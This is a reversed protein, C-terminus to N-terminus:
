FASALLMIVLILVVVMVVAKLNGGRARPDVYATTTAGTRANVMSSVTLVGHGSLRGEVDVDDGQRLSGGRLEGRLMCEVSDGSHTQLLFTNIPISLQDPGQPGRFMLSPIMLFRLPAFLIGMLIGMARFPATLCGSAAMQATKHGSLSVTESRPQDVQVVLGSMRLPAFKAFFGGSGGSAAVVGGDDVVPVPQNPSREIEPLEADYRASTDRAEWNPTDGGLWDYTAPSDVEALHSPTDASGDVRWGCQTCSSSLVLIHCNPCESM